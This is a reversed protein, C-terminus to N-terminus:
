RNWLYIKKTSGDQMHWDEGLAFSLLSKSYAGYNKIDLNLNMEDVMRIIKPNKELYSSICKGIQEFLRSLEGGSLKFSVKNKEPLSGKNIAIDEIVETGIKNINLVSYSNKPGDMSEYQSYKGIMLCFGEPDEKERELQFFYYYVDGEKKLLFPMTGFGDAENLNKSLFDTYNFLNKM